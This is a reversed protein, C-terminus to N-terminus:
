KQALVFTSTQLYEYNKHEDRQKVPELLKYLKSLLLTKTFPIKLEHPSVRKGFIRYTIAVIRTFVYCYNALRHWNPYNPLYELINFQLKSLIDTLEDKTYHRYHGMLYFYSPFWHRYPVSLILLGGSKLVRSIERLAQWHDAIHEIVETCLIVDFRNSDYPLETASGQKLEVSSPLLSKAIALSPESYEVGFLRLEESLLSNLNDGIGCGVDLVLSNKFSKERLKKVIVEQRFTRRQDIGSFFSGVDTQTFFDNYFEQEDKETKIKQRKIKSLRLLIYDIYDGVTAKNGFM